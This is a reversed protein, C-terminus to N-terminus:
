NSQITSQTLEKNYRTKGLGYATIFTRDIRNKPERVKAVLLVRITENPTANRKIGEETIVIFFYTNPQAPDSRLIFTSSLTLDTVVKKGYPTLTFFYKDGVPIRGKKEKIKKVKTKQQEPADRKKIDEITRKKFKPKDNM